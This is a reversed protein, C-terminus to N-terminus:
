YVGVSTVRGRTITVNVRNLRLDATLAFRHGDREIVRWSCHFRRAMAEAQDESEGLLSRTDFSRHVPSNPASQRLSSRGTPCWVPQAPHTVKVAVPPVSHASEAPKSATGCACLLLGSGLVCM